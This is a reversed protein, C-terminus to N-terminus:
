LGRRHTVDISKHNLMRVLTRHLPPIASSHSPATRVSTPSSHSLSLSSRITPDDGNTRNACTMTAATWTRESAVRRSAVRRTADSIEQKEYRALSPSEKEDGTCQEREREREGRGGLRRVQSGSNCNLSSFPNKKRDISAISVFCNREQSFQPWKSRGVQIEMNQFQYRRLCTHSVCKTYEKVRFIHTHIQCWITPRKM